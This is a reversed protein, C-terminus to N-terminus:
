STPEPQGCFLCRSETMWFLRGLIGRRRVQFFGHRVNPSGDDRYAPRDGDALLALCINPDFEPVKSPDSM